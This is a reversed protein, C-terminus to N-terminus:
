ISGVSAALADNLGMATPAPIWGDDAWMRLAHAVMNVVRRACEQIVHDRKDLYRLAMCAAWCDGGFTESGSGTSMPKGDSTLEGAFNVANFLAEAAATYADSARDYELRGGRHWETMFAVVAHAAKIMDQAVRHRYQSSPHASPKRQIRALQVAARRDSTHWTRYGMGEHVLVPVAPYHPNVAVANVRGSFCEEQRIGGHQGPGDYDVRHMRLYARQEATLAVPTFFYDRAQTPCTTLTEAAVANM